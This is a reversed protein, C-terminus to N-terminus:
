RRYQTGARGARRERKRRCRQGSCRFEVKSVKDINKKDHPWGACNIAHAKRCVIKIAKAQFDPHLELGRDVPYLQAADFRFTIRGLAVAV